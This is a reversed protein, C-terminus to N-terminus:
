CTDEAKLRAWCKTRVGRYTPSGDIFFPGAFWFHGNKVLIGFGRSMYRLAKPPVSPLTTAMVRGRPGFYDFIKPQLGVSAFPHLRFDPLSVWSKPLGNNHCCGFACKLYDTDKSSEGWRARGLPWLSTGNSIGTGHCWSVVLACLPASGLGPYPAKFLSYLPSM